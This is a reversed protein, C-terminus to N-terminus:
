RRRDGVIEVAVRRLLDLLGLLAQELEGGGALGFAAELGELRASASAIAIASAANLRLPLVVPTEVPKM